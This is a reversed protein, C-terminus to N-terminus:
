IGFKNATLNEQELDKLDSCIYPLLSNDDFQALNIGTFWKKTKLHSDEITTFFTVVDKIENYNINEYVIGVEYGRGGGTTITSITGIHTSLFNIYNRYQANQPHEFYSEPFKPFLIYDGIQPLNILEWTRLKEYLKFHTIM